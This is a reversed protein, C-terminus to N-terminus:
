EPEESNQLQSATAVYRLIANCSQSKEWSPEKALKANPCVTQRLSGSARSSRVTKIDNGLPPIILYTIQLVM